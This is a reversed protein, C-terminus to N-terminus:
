STPLVPHLTAGFGAESHEVLLEVVPPILAMPINAGDRVRATSRRAIRSTARHIRVRADGAHADIDRRFREKLRAAAPGNAHM